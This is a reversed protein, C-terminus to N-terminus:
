GRRHRAEAWRYHIGFALVPHLWPLLGGEMSNSVAALDCAVDCLKCAVHLLGRDGCHMSQVSAMYLICTDHM